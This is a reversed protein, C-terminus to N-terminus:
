SESWQKLIENLAQSTNVELNQAHEIICELNENSLSFTRKKRPEAGIRKKGSGARAGGWNSNIKGRKNNNKIIKKNDKNVEIYNDEINIVVKNERLQRVHEKIISEFRFWEGRTRLSSFLSHLMAEKQMGGNEISLIKLENPCGTQLASLRIKMSELDRTYGIKVRNTNEALVYYIM